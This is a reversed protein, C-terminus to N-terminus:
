LLIMKDNLIKVVKTNFKDQLYIDSGNYMFARQYMLQVSKPIVLQKLRCNEFAVHGIYNLGENLQIEEIRTNVFANSCISTVFSPLIVRKSEGKYSYLKVEKNEVRYNFSMDLGLMRSKSSFEEYKSDILAEFEKDETITYTDISKYTDGVGEIIEYACNMVNSREINIKLEEASMFQITRDHQVLKFKNENIKSLLVYRSNNTTQKVTHPWQKIQLEGDKLHANKIKLKYDILLEKIYEINGRLMSDTHTEFLTYKGDVKRNDFNILYIM